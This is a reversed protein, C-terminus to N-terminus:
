KQFNYKAFVFVVLNGWLDGGVSLVVDYVDDYFQAAQSSFPDRRPGMWRDNGVSSVVDYFGDYFQAAERRGHRLWSNASPFVNWRLWSSASSFPDRRPGMWRDNGVSSAVDYFGDYFQAAERRPGMVYGAVQQHSSMGSCCFNYVFFQIGTTLTKGPWPQTKGPWPQTCKYGM